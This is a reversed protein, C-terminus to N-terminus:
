RKASEMARRAALIWNDVTSSVMNAGNVKVNYHQKQVMTSALDRRIQDLTVASSGGGSAGSAGIGGGTSGKTAVGPTTGAGVGGEVPRGHQIEKGDADLSKLVVDTIKGDKVTVIAAQNGSSSRNGTGLYVGDRFATYPTGQISGQNGKQNMNQNRLATNKNGCGVLSSLILISIITSSAKRM